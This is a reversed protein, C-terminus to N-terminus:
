NNIIGNGDVCTFYYLIFAAIFLHKKCSKNWKIASTCNRQLLIFAAVFNWTEQPQNLMMLMNRHMCWFIWLAFNNRYIVDWRRFADARRWAHRLTSINKTSNRQETLIKVKCHVSRLIAQNLSHSTAFMTTLRVITIPCCFGMMNRCKQHTYASLKAAKYKTYAVGVYKEQLTKKCIHPPSFYFLIFAEVFTSCSLQLFM